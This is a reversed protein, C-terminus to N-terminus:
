VERSFTIRTAQNAGTRWMKDYPVLQGWIRRGRVAPSSYDVTIDTLGVRQMVKAQPSPRPLELQQAGAPPVMLVLLLALLVISWGAMTKMDMSRGSQTPPCPLLQRWHQCPLRM